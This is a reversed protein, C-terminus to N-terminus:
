LEENRGEEGKIREWKKKYCFENFWSVFEPDNEYEFFQFLRLGLEHKTIAEEKTKTPIEFIQAGIERKIKTRFDM